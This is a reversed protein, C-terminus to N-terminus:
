CNMLASSTFVVLVVISLLIIFNNSNDKVGHACIGYNKNNTENTEDARARSVRVGLRWAAIQIQSQLFFVNSKHQL